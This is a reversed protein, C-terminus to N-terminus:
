GLRVAQEIAIGLAMLLLFVAFVQRLRREPLRGAFRGGLLLGGIGVASFVVVTTWDVSLPSSAGPHNGQTLYKAVGVGANLAIVLLSTGTALGMPLRRLLVLTPVILFGGGVGVFGTVFGLAVGISFGQIAVLTSSRAPAAEIGDDSAPRENRPRLMLLAAILMLGSLVALQVGGHVFQAVHAGGATGIFGPIALLLASRYDVRKARGARIAGVLAISGVIALSEVIASKEDHGVLFTLIPVTLIAGGSGLLGLSVGVLLAGVLAALLSWPVAGSSTLATTDALVALGIAAWATM